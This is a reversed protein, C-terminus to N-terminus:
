MRPLKDMLKIIALLTTLWRINVKANKTECHSQSLKAFQHYHKATMPQFHFQLKSLIICRNALPQLGFLNSYNSALQSYVTYSIDMARGNMYLVSNITEFIENLDARYNIFVLNIRAIMETLMSVICLRVHIYYIALQSCYLQNDESAFVQIVIHKHLNMIIVCQPHTALSVNLIIVVIAIYITIKEEINHPYVKRYICLQNIQNLLLVSYSYM